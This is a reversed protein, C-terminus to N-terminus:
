DNALLFTDRARKYHKLLIQNFDKEVQIAKDLSDADWKLPPRGQKVIEVIVDNPLPKSLFSGRRLDDYSAFRCLGFFEIYKDMVEQDALYGYQDMIERVKYFIIDGTMSFEGKGTALILPTYLRSLRNELLEQHHLKEQKAPILWLETLVTSLLAIIAGMLILILDYVRSRKNL